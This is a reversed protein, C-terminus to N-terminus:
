WTTITTPAIPPSSRTTSRARLVALLASRHAKRVPVASPQGRHIRREAYGVSLVICNANDVGVVGGPPPHLVDIAVGDTLSLRDGASTYELKTGSQEISSRLVNLARSNEKFMVPSVYVVGVSFRKLLELM